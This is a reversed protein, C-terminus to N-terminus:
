GFKIGKFRFSVACEMLDSSDYNPPSFQINHIKTEVFTWTQVVTGVPDLFKLICDKLNGHGQKIMADRVQEDTAPNATCYLHLKAPLGSTLVGGGMVLKPLDIKKVLFADIGDFEVIFRRQHLPEFATPVMMNNPIQQGKKTM